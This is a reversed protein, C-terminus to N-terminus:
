LSRVGVYMMMFVIKLAAILLLNLLYLSDEFLENDLEEASFVSM